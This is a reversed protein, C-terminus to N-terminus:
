SRPVTMQMILSFGELQVELSIANVVHDWPRYRLFHVVPARFAASLSLFYLVIRDHHCIAFLFCEPLSMLSYEFIFFHSSIFEAKDKCCYESVLAIM